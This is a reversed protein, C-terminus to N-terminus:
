SDLNLVYSIGINTLSVSAAKGPNYLVSGRAFPKLLSQSEAQILINLLQQGEIGTEKTIDSIRATKHGTNEALNYITILVLNYNDNNFTM